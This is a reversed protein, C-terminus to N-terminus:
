SLNNELRKFFQTTTLIEVDRLKVAVVVVERQGGYPRLPSAVAVFSTGVRAQGGDGKVAVGLDDVEQLRLRSDGLGFYFPAEAVQNDILLDDLPDTRCERGLLRDEEVSRRTGALRRNGLTKHTQVVVPDNHGVRDVEVALHDTHVVRGDVLGDIWLRGTEVTAEYHALTGEHKGTTLEFQRHEM